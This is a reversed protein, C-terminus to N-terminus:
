PAFHNRNEAPTGVLGPVLSALAFAAYCLLVGDLPLRPGSLYEAHSLVYPLPMCLAAITAPRGYRRWTHSMRWGLLALVLTALLTGVLITEANDSLWDPPATVSDGPEQLSSLRRDKFWREGLFFMLGADIRRTLTEKPHTEIEDRVEDALNRYRKAQNPEDLLRKLRPEPLTERLATEELTSGTAHPNNGMWLHWYMSTAVPVPQEFEFYNRVGLPALGNAFGVLALFAAFWGFSFRRCQWLFWLLAIVAFPLLAARTMAVGALALSSSAM